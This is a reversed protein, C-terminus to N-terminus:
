GAYSKVIKRFSPCVQTLILSQLYASSLLPTQNRIIQFYVPLYYAASFFYAGTCFTALCLLSVSPIKFVRLPVIPLKAYRAEVLIFAALFV